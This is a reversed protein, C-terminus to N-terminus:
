LSNEDYLRVATERLVSVVNKAAERIAANDESAISLRLVELTQQLCVAGIVAATGKLAHCHEELKSCDGSQVYRELQAIREPALDYFQRAILRQLGRSQGAFIKLCDQDLLPSTDILEKPKAVLALSHTIIKKIVSPRIPKAFYHVNAIGRLSALEANDASSVVIIPMRVLGNKNKIIKLLEFGSLGPLHLDLVVLHPEKHALYTLAACGDAAVDVKSNGDVERVYNKYLTVYLPDDEVVLVHPRVCNPM